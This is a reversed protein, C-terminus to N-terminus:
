ESLNAIIFALQEIDNIKEQIIHYLESLLSLSCMAQHKCCPPPISGVMITKSKRQALL